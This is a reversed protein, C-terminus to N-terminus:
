GTRDMNSHELWELVRQLPIPLTLPQRWVGRNTWGDELTSHLPISPQCLCGICACAFSVLDGCDGIRICQGWRHRAGTASDVCPASHRSELVGASQGRKSLLATACLWAGSRGTDRSVHFAFTNRGAGGSAMTRCVDDGPLHFPDM